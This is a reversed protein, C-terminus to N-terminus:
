GVLHEAKGAALQQRFFSTYMGKWEFSFEEKEVDIRPAPLGTDNQGARVQVVFIQEHRRPIDIELEPWIGPMRETSNAPRFRPVSRISEQDGLKRLLGQFPSEHPNRPVSKNKFIARGKNNEDIHSFNFIAGSLLIWQKDSGKKVMGHSCEAESDCVADM